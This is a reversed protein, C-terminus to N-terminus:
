TASDGRRESFVGDVADALKEVSSQLYGLCPRVDRDLIERTEAAFSEPLVDRHEDVLEALRVMAEALEDGFGRITILPARLDHLRKRSANNAVACPEAGM